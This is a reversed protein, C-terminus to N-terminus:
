PIEAEDTEAKNRVVESLPNSPSPKGIQLSSEILRGTLVLLEDKTIGGNAQLQCLGFMGIGLYTNRESNTRLSVMENTIELALAKDEKSSSSSIDIGKLIGLLENSVDIKGSKEHFVEAGQVCGNGKHNVFAASNKPSWVFLKSATSNGDKDEAKLEAFSMMPKTEGFWGGYASCGSILVMSLFVFLNKM